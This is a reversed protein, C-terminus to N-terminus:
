RLMAKVKVQALGEMMRWGAKRREFEWCIKFLAIALIDRKSLIVGAVVVDDPAVLKNPVLVAVVAGGDLLKNPLVVFVFGGDALRNPVVV